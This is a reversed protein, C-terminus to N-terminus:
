AQRRLFLHVNISTTGDGATVEPRVKWVLETIFQISGSTFSLSDGIGNTLTVWNTGDITGKLVVTGGAGFTGAVQVSRDYYERLDVAEGVDGNALGTWNLRTVVSLVDTQLTSAITAM